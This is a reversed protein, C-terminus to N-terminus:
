CSTKKTDSPWICSTSNVTGMGSCFHMFCITCDSKACLPYCKCCQGHTCLNDVAYVRIKAFKNSSFRLRSPCINLEDDDVAPVVWKPLGLCAAPHRIILSRHRFATPAPHQCRHHHCHERHCGALSNRLDQGSINVM